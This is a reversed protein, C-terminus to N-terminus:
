SRFVSILEEPVVAVPVYTTELKEIDATTYILLETTYEKGNITYIVTKKEM